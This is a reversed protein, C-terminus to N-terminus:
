RRMTFRLLWRASSAFLSIALIALVFMWRRIM